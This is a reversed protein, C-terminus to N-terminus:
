KRELHSELFFIVRILCLKKNDITNIKKILIGKFISIFYIDNFATTLKSM